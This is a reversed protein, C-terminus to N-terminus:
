RRDPAPAPATHAPHHHVPTPRGARVRHTHAHPAEGHKCGPLAFVAALVAAVILSRKM